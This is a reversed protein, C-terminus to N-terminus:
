NPPSHPQPPILRRRGPPSNSDIHHGHGHIITHHHYWCLTALNDPHNDGGRHRPEIHHPQLRYTSLCGDIVCGDDRALVFRRLRPPITTTATGIALPQGEETVATVEM